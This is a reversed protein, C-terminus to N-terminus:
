WVKLNVELLVWYLFMGQMFQTQNHMLKKKRERDRERLIVWSLFMQILRERERECM